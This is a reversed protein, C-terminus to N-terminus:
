LGWPGLAQGGHGGASLFCCTCKLFGRLAESVPDPHPPWSPFPVIYAKAAAIVPGIYLGWWGALFFCRWFIIGNTPRSFSFHLVEESLFLGRWGVGEEKVRMVM